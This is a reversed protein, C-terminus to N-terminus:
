PHSQRRRREFAANHRSMDGWVTLPRTRWGSLLSAASAQNLGDFGAMARAYWKSRTFASLPQSGYLACFAESYVSRSIQLARFVVALASGDDNYCIRQAADIPLASIQSLEEEVRRLDDRRIAQLFEEVTGSSNAPIHPLPADAPLSALHDIEAERSIDDIDDSIMDAVDAGFRESIRSKLTEGVWAFMVSALQANMERRGLLPEQLREITRSAEVLQVMAHDSLDAGPNNVLGVLVRDGGLSVLIDAVQASVIGRQSMALRHEESRAVAIAILDDDELITSLRLLPESVDITDNGALLALERPLDDRDAIRQVLRKRVAMEAHPWLKHIIDYAIASEAATLPRIQDSYMGSVADALARVEIPQASRAYSLLLNMRDYSM